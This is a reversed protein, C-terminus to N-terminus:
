ITLRYVHAKLGSIRRLRFPLDALVEIARVCYDLASLSSLERNSLLNGLNRHVFMESRPVNIVDTEIVQSDTCGLWLIQPDDRPVSPIIDPHLPVATYEVSMLFNKM